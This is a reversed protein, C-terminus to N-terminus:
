NDDLLDPFQMFLDEDEIVPQLIEIGRPAMVSIWDAVIEGYPLITSGQWWDDSDFGAYRGALAFLGILLVARILGFFGGLSRDVGSLGSMRIIKSLLWGILAGVALILVFIIGRGAWLQVDTSQITGGLWGSAYPGLHLSAWIALLLTAISFSERVIGRLFGVFVSALVAIIIVTDVITM